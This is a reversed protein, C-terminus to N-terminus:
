QNEKGVRASVVLSCFIGILARYEAVIEYSSRQSLTEGLVLGVPGARVQEDTSRVHLGWGRLKSNLDRCGETTREFEQRSMENVLVQTVFLGFRGSDFETVVQKARQMLAGDYMWEALLAAAMEDLTSGDAASRSDGGLLLEIDGDGLDAESVIKTTESRHAHQRFLDIAANELAFDLGTLSRLEDPDRSGSLYKLLLHQAADDCWRSSDGTLIRRARRQVLVAFPEWDGDVRIAALAHELPTM